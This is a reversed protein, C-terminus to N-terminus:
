QRVFLRRGEEVGDDAAWHRDVIGTAAALVFLGASLSWLTVRARQASRKLRAAVAQGSITGGSNMKKKRM